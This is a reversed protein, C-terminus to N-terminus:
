RGAGTDAVPVLGNAAVIAQGKESVLLLAIKLAAPKLTLVAMGDLPRPDLRAPVTLSTLEPLEKVLAPVASCYTISMDVQHSAFLAAAPSQDPAPAPTLHMLAEAKGKLAAGAGPRLADIKELITWAYDGAPDAVPTSTRLHVEKALLRDILNKETVGAARRSVICMRNGAFVIPPIITRGQAALQRPSGVDASLFLDPTEGKEIRERLLGSGGFTAKIEIGAAAAERTLDTVVGRLSGASFLEVTTAEAAAGTGALMSTVSLALLGGIPPSM